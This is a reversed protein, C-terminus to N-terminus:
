KKVLVLLKSNNMGETKDLEHNTTIFKATHFHQDLGMAQLVNIYRGEIEARFIDEIILLGHPKVNAHAHKIINIQDAFEHTTDDILIDFQHDKLAQTISHPDKVNIQSYHTNPLNDSLAQTIHGQDNDFGHLTANPFYQRWLKMSANCLIGLEAIHIPQHRLTSFLLDYVATYAHRHHFAFNHYPSKDTPLPSALECLPSRAHTTDITISEVQM